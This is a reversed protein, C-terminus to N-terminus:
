SRKAKRVALGKLGAEHAREPSGAFGRGTGDANLPGRTLGGKRGIVKYFDTEGSGYRTRNTATTKLGGKRTGAM